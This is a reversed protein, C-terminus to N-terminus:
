FSLLQTINYIIINLCQEIIDTFNELIWFHFFIPMIAESKIKLQRALYAVLEDQAPIHALNYDYLTDDLDFFM